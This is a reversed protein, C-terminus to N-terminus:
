PLSLARDACPSLVSLHSTEHSQKGAETRSPIRRPWKVAAAGVAAALNAALRGRAGGAQRGVFCELALEFIRPGTVQVLGSQHIRVHSLQAELSAQDHIRQTVRGTKVRQDDSGATGTRDQGRAQRFVGVPGDTEDLGARVVRADILQGIADARM